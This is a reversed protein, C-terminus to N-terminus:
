NFRRFGDGPPLTQRHYGSPYPHEGGTGDANSYGGSNGGGHGADYGGGSNGYYGGGCGSNASGRYDGGGGGGGGGGGFGDRGYGGGYGVNSSGRYDAGAASAGGAYSGPQAPGISYAVSAVASTSSALYSRCGEIEALFRAESSLVASMDPEPPPPNYPRPGAALHHASAPHHAPTALHHASAPHHAPSPHVSHAATPAGYPAHANPPERAYAPEYAPGRGGGRLGAEEYAAGRGGGRPGAELSALFAADSASLGRPESAASAYPAAPPPRAPAHRPYRAHHEQPPAAPSPLAAVAAQWKSGHSPPGMHSPATRHSPPSPLQPLQPQPPPRAGHEKYGIWERPKNGGTLVVGDRVAGAVDLRSSNSLQDRLWLLLMGRPVAVVGPMGTRTEHRCTGLVAQFLKLLTTIGMQLLRDVDRSSPQLYM